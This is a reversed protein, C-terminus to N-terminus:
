QIKYPVCTRKRKPLYLVSHQHIYVLVRLSAVLHLSFCRSSCSCQHTSRRGKIYFQHSLSAPRNFSFAYPQNISSLIGVKQYYEAGVGIHRWINRKKTPGFEHTQTFWDLGKAKRRGRGVEGGGTCGRVRRRGGVVHGNLLHHHHHRHHHRHYRYNHIGGGRKLYRHGLFSLGPQQAQPAQSRQWYRPADERQARAQAERRPRPSNQKTLM